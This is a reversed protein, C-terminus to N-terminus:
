LGSGAGRDLIRPPRERVRFGPFYRSKEAVLRLGGHSVTQYSGHDIAPCRFIELLTGKPGLSGSLLARRFQVRSLVEIVDHTLEDVVVVIAPGMLSNAIPQDAGCRRVPRWRNLANLLKSALRTEASQELSITAGGSTLWTETLPSETACQRNAGANGLPSEPAAIRGSV